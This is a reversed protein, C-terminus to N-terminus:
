EMLEQMKQQQLILKPIVSIFRMKETQKLNTLFLLFRRHTLSKKSEWAKVSVMYLMLNVRSFIM